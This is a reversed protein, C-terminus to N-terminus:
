DEWRRSALDWLDPLEALLSSTAGKPTQVLRARRYDRRRSVRVAVACHMAWRTAQTDEIMERLLRSATKWAAAMNMAATTTAGASPFAPLMGFGHAAYLYIIDFGARKLAAGGSSALAASKRIDTKGM